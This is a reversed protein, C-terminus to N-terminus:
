HIPNPKYFGQGVEIEVPEGLFDVVRAPALQRCEFPALCHTANILDGLDEISRVTGAISKCKGYRPRVTIEVLFVAYPYVTVLGAVGGDSIDSFDPLVKALEHRM